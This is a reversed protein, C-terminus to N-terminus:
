SEVRVPPRSTVSLVTVEIEDFRFFVWLDLGAVRRVWAVGFVPALAEFDQPGPLPGTMLRGLTAALVAAPLKRPAVLRQRTWFFLETLRLARRV